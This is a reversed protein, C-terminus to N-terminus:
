EAWTADRQRRRGDREWRQQLSASHRVLTMILESQHLMNLLLCNAYLINGSRGNSFSQHSQGASFVLETICHSLSALLRVSISLRLAVSDLVHHRFSKQATLRECVFWNLKHSSLNFARTLLKLVTSFVLYFPFYHREKKQRGRWKSKLHHSSPFRKGNWAPPECNM